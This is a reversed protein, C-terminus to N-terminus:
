DLVPQYGLARAPLQFDEPVTNTYARDAALWGAPHGREVVSALAVLANPGVATSPRHLPALHLHARQPMPFAQM